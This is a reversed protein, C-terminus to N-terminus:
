KIKKCLRTGSGSWGIEDFTYVRWNSYNFNNMGHRSYNDIVMWGGIKLKPASANAFLLKMDHKPDSDILIIDFYNNPEKKLADLIQTENALFVEVNKYKKTKEKVKRYWRSNTEFSKISECNNAWFLTSGGSGFELVRMKKNVLHELEVIAGFSLWPYGLIFASDGRVLSEYEPIKSLITKM